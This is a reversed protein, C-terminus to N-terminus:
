STVSAGGGEVREIQVLLCTTTHHHQSNRSPTCELHPDTPTCLESVATQTETPLVSFALRQSSEGQGLAQRHGREEYFALELLLSKIQNVASDDTNPITGQETFIHRIFSIFLYILSVDKRWSHKSTKGRRCLKRVESELTHNQKNPPKPM